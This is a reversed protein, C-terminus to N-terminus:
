LYTRDLSSDLTEDVSLGNIFENSSRHPKTATDIV